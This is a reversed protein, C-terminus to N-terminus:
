GNSEKCLYVRYGQLDPDHNCDPFGQMPEELPVTGIFEEYKAVNRRSNDDDSEDGFPLLTGELYAFRVKVEVTSKDSAFQKFRKNGRHVPINHPHCMYVEGVKMLHQLQGCPKHRCLDSISPLNAPRTTDRELVEYDLPQGRDPCKM